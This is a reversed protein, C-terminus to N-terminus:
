KSAKVTSLTLKSMNSEDMNRNFEVTYYVDVTLLLVNNGFAKKEEDLCPIRRVTKVVKIAGNNSVIYENTDSSDYAMENNLITEKKDVKGNEDLMAYDGNELQETTYTGDDIEDKIYSNILHKKDHEIYKQLEEGEPTDVSSSSVGKYNAYRSKFKSFNDHVYQEFVTNPTRTVANQRIFYGTLEDSDTQLMKEIHYVARDIAINRVKIMRYNNYCGNFLSISFILFITLVLIGVGIEILSYGRNSKFM